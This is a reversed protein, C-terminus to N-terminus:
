YSAPCMKIVNGVYGKNLLFYAVPSPRNVIKKKKQLMMVLILPFITSTMNSTSVANTILLSLPLVKFSLIQPM